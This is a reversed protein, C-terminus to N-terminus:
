LRAATAAIMDGLTAAWDAVQAPTALRDQRVEINVYPLGRAEAHRNMTYNLLRGSYPENDGVLLGRSRLHEIAVRAARDDSNYLIGVPWPRAEDPRAALRPTFSHLSVLLKPLRREVMRGIADHYPAHFRAIRDRREDDTLSANGSISHGDSMAPILGAAEPERNLDIVLRSVGALVAPAALRAALARTLADAGIDVGVHENLLADEIGLDVGAPVANSAHDAVLLVPADGDIVIPHM